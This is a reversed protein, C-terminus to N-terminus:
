LGLDEGVFVVTIRGPRSEKEIILTKGCLRDPPYCEGDHCVGDSACPATYGGRVAVNIAAYHRARKLAEELNPVIKNLGAVLIVNAAGYVYGGIRSGGGDINVLEGTLAVANISGLCYDATTAQRRLNYREEETSAAKVEDSFYKYVNDTLTDTIGCEKLTVSGGTNVSSGPPIMGLVTNRADDVTKCYIAGINRRKLEPILMELQKEYYERVSPNM